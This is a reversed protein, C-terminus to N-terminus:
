PCQFFLHFQTPYVYVIELNLLQSLNPVVGTFNNDHLDRLTWLASQCVKNLLNCSIESFAMGLVKCV